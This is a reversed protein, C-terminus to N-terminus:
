VIFRDKLFKRGILVPFRMDSRNNLSLNIKHTKGFLVITSTIAYRHQLIGNSSRVKVEEFDKFTFKKKNYLPHEKDLFLCKLVGDEVVIEQCHISSTYAGTDIKIAIDKLNLEPFDAKDIRGILQKNM